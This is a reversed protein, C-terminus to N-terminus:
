GSVRNVSDSAARIIQDVEAPTLAGGGTKTARARALAEWTILLTRNLRANVEFAQALRDDGSQIKQGLGAIAEIHRNTHDMTFTLFADTRKGTEVAGRVFVAWIIGGLLVIVFVLAGLVGWSTAYDKPNVSQFLLLFTM